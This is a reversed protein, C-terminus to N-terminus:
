PLPRAAASLGHVQSIPASGTSHSHAMTMLDKASLQGQVYAELTKRADADVTGGELEQSGIVAEVIRQRRLREATTM